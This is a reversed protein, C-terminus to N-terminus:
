SLNQCKLQFVFRNQIDIFQTETIESFEHFDITKNNWVKICFDKFGGINSEFAEYALNKHLGTLMIVQLLSLYEGLNRLFYHLFYLSQKTKNEYNKIQLEYKWGEIQPIMTNSM